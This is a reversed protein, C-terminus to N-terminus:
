FDEGLIGHMGFALLLTWGELWHPGTDAQMGKGGKCSGYKAIEQPHPASDGTVCACSLGKGWKRPCIHGM